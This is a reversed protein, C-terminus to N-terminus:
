RKNIKNYNKIETCSKYYQSYITLNFLIFYFKLILFNSPKIVRHKKYNSDKFLFEELELIDKFIDRFMYIFNAYKNNLALHFKRAIHKSSKMIESFFPFSFDLINLITNDDLFLFKKFNLFDEKRNVNNQKNNLVKLSKTEKQPLLSRKSDVMREDNVIRGSLDHQPNNDFLKRDNVQYMAYKEFSDFNESDNEENSKKSLHSSYSKNVLNSKEKNEKNFESKESSNKRYIEEKIFGDINFPENFNNSNKIVDVNFNDQNNINRSNVNNYINNSYNNNINNVDSSNYISNM